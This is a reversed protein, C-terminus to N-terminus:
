LQEDIRGLTTQEIHIPYQQWRVMYSTISLYIKATSVHLAEALADLAPYYITDLFFVLTNVAAILLITCIKEKESLITFRSSKPERTLSRAGIDARASVSQCKTRESM